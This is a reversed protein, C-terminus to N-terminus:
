RLLEPERWSDEDRAKECISTYCREMYFLEKASPLDRGINSM